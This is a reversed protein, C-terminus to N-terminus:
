VKYFLEDLPVKKFYTNINQIFLNMAFRFAPGEAYKSAALWNENLRKLIKAALEDNDKNIHDFGIVVNTREHHEIQATRILIHEKGTDSKYKELDADIQIHINETVVTGNGKGNIVNEFMQGNMEYDGKLVISPCLLDYIFKTTELKLLANTVICDKYGTMVANRFIYTLKPLVGIIIEMKLPDSPKVGLTPIGAAIAPLTENFSNTICEEDNFDCPTRSADFESNMNKLSTFAFTTKTREYLKLKMM